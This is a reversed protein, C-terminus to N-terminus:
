DTLINLLFLCLAAATFSFKKTADSPVCLAGVDFPQEKKGGSDIM